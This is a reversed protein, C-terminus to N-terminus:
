AASRSLTSLVREGTARLHDLLLMSATTVDRTIVADMIALHEAAVDRTGPQLRVAFRRYRESQDFLNDCMALIRPFSCAALLSMHFAKHLVTWEEGRAGNSVREFRALSYHAAVIGAEWAANGCRIADALAEGEMLLRMRTIDRLDSVTLPAARFGRNEESVVLGETTLRNLAERVPTSSLELERQLVEIKLKSQPPLEGLLIMRRLKAYAVDSNIRPKMPTPEIM